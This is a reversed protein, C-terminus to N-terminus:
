SCTQAEEQADIWAALCSGIYEAVQPVVANGLVRLRDLWHSIGDAVRDMGPEHAWVERQSIPRSLILRDRDAPQLLGAGQAEQLLGPQPQLTQSRHRDSDAVPRRLRELPTQQSSASHSRSKQAADPQECAPYALLYVRDRLHPAGFAAAPLCQWEAACGRAALHGLVTAMGAPRGDRRRQLLDAVNEVFVYHPRLEGIIRDMERWLGSRAGDIGARKGASSLDQCPFGGALLDVPTLNHAGCDRVDRFRPTDPWHKALVRQCYDDLEIQWAITYRGTRELGLDIGGIGSFLSGVTFQQQKM